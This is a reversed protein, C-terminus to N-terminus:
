IFGSEQLNVDGLTTHVTYSIYERSRSKATFVTLLLLFQQQTFKSDKFGAVLAKSEERHNQKETVVHGFHGAPVHHIGSPSHLHEPM